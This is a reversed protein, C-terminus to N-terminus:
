VMGGDDIFSVAGMATDRYCDYITNIPRFKDKIFLLFPKGM